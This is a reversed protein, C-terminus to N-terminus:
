AVAKKITMTIQQMSRTYDIKGHSVIVYCGTYNTWTDTSNPAPATVTHTALDDFDAWNFQGNLNREVDLTLDRYKLPIPAGEGDFGVIQGSRPTWAHADPQPWLEIDDIEFAGNSM